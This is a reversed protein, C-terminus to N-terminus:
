DAAETSAADRARWLARDAEDIAVLLGNFCPTDDVPFARSFDSGLAALDRQTLLGVAVIAGDDSM